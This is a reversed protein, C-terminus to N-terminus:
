FGDYNHMNEVVTAEKMKKSLVLFGLEDICRGLCFFLKNIAKFRSEYSLDFMQDSILQCRCYFRYRYKDLKSVKGM